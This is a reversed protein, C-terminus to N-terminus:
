NRWIAGIEALEEAYEEAPNTTNLSIEIKEGALLGEVQKKAEQM